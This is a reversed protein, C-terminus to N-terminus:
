AKMLMTLWGDRISWQELVIGQRGFASTIRARQHPLLGSLIIQAGPAAHHSMPHALTELPRALINAFILDAAGFEKFIPHHFGAATECRVQNGVGNLDCNLRAVKTAIPDIDTALVPIRAAKALAIALVGSGTGIDYAKRPLGMQGSSKRLCVELMDLCGATTGHHGTGFAQGAEVEIPIIKNKATERDHSGHVYFRGAVVPALERLTESVWDIDEIQEEEIKLASFQEGLRDTMFSRWQDKDTGDIYISYCWFGSDESTEFLVSAIGEEEFHPDMIEAIQYADSKNTTLHLRSQSM